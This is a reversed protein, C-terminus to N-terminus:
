ARSCFTTEKPIPLAFRSQKQVCISGYKTCCHQLKEFLNCAWRQVRPIRAACQVAVVTTMIDRSQVSYGGSYEHYGEATSM